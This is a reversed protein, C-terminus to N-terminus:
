APLFSVSHPNGTTTGRHTTNLAVDAHDSGDGTSHTYAAKANAASVENPGGTDLAQDTGQTHRAASNTAIDGHDYTGEHSSVASSAESAGTGAPDAGVDDADLSHPNGTVVQSHTYAALAEAATVENAGGEDLKTDTNQTHSASDLADFQSQIASTVGVLYGLETPSVGGVDQGNVDLNGGLQPTVDEVLETLYNANVTGM